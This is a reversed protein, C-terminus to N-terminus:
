VPYDAWLLLPLDTLPSIVRLVICAEPLNVMDGRLWASSRSYELTTNQSTVPHIKPQSPPGSPAGGSKRSGSLISRPRDDHPQVPPEPRGTLSGWPKTPHCWAAQGSTPSAHADEETQQAYATCAGRWGSRTPSPSRMRYAAGPPLQECTRITRVNDGSGHNHRSDDYM